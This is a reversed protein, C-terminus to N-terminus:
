FDAKIRNWARGMLRRRQLSDATQTDVRELMAPTHFIAPDGAVDPSILALSDPIANAYRQDESVIAMVEPRMLYDLFLHALDPNPADVDIVWGDMWLNSGENGMTYALRIDLNEDRARKQGLAFDGNWTMTLCVEKTPLDIAVRSNEFYRIYPRVGKIVAEAAELSETSKEDPAYGAYIAALTLAQVPDDLFAVGCDAFHKVVEPDFIMALSDTPADPLREKIMDVNYAFGATGWFYPVLYANGPDAKQLLQMIRPDLNQHNPLEEFNLPQFVGLPLYTHFVFNSMGLLDYGTKGSMIRTGLMEESPYTNYVVDVGYEDEFGKILAAPVYDAWQFLQLVGEEAAAPRVLSFLGIVATLFVTLALAPSKNAPPKIKELSWSGLESKSVMGCFDLHM